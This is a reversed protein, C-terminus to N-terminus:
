RIKLAGSLLLFLGVIILLIGIIATRLESYFGDPQNTHFRKVFVIFFVGFFLSIAGLLYDNTM